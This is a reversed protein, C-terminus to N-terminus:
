RSDKRRKQHEQDNEHKTSEDLHKWHYTSIRKLPTMFPLPSTSLFAASLLPFEFELTESIPCALKFKNM